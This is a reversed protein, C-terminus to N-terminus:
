PKQQTESVIRVSKSLYEGDLNIELRNAKAHADELSEAWVDLAIAVHYKKEDEPVHRVFFKSWEGLRQTHGHNNVVWMEPNISEEVYVSTYVGDKSFDTGLDVLAKIKM